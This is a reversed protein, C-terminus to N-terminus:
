KNLSRILRREVEIMTQDFDAVIIKCTTDLEKTPCIMVGLQPQSFSRHKNQEDWWTEYFEDTMDFSPKPNIFDKIVPDRKYWCYAISIGGTKEGSQYKMELAVISLFYEATDWPAIEVDHLARLERKIHSEIFAKQDESKVSVYVQFHKDLEPALLVGPILFFMFGVLTCMKKM